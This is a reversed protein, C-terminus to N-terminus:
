TIGIHNSSSCCVRPLGVLLRAWLIDSEEGTSFKSTINEAWIVGGHAEIIKKSISLGLGSHAGFAGNPRDSYFRDFIKDLTGTPFGPGTDEIHAKLQANHDRWTDMQALKPILTHFIQDATYDSDNQLLTEIWIPWKYLTAANFLLLVIVLVMNVSIILVKSNHLRRSLASSAKAIWNQKLPKPSQPAFFRKTWQRAGFGESQHAGREAKANASHSLDGLTM